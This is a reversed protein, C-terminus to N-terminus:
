RSCTPLWGLFPSIRLQASDEATTYALLTSPARQLRLLPMSSSIPLMAPKTGSNPRSVSSPRLAWQSMSTFHWLRGSGCSKPEAMPMFTM